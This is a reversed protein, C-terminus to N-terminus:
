KTVLKNIRVNQVCQQSLSISLSNQVEQSSAPHILQQGSPSGQQQSSGGSGIAMVGGLWTAFLIRPVGDRLLITYQGGAYNVNQPSEVSVNWLISNHDTLNLALVWKGPVRPYHNASILMIPNTETGCITMCSCPLVPDDTHTINRTLNKMDIVEIISGDEERFHVLKNGGTDDSFWSRLQNSDEYWFGGRPDISFSFLTINAYKVKWKMVGNTYVAYIHPDKNRGFVTSNNFGDFYITDGILTPSAQSTGFYSFNWAVQFVGPGNPDNRLFDVAFFQGIKVGKKACALFIRNGKVCASNITSYYDPGQLLQPTTVANSALEQGTTTDVASVNGDPSTFFAINGEHFITNLPMLGFPVSAVWEVVHQDSDYHYPCSLPNSMISVFDSMPMDPLGYYSTSGGGEGLKIEGIKEGTRVDYALVPGGETPLIITRNDVITPSLVVSRFPHLVDHPIETIWEVYVHDHDSANVLIMKSNDCAIVRDHIDVMPTSSTAFFNLGWPNLLSGSHWIRNGDYDYIILNDLGLYNTFTSAAIRGNGAIGNGFTGALEGGLSHDYWIEGVNDIPVPLRINDSQQPSCHVMGGGAPPLIFDSGIITEPSHTLEIYAKGTVSVGGITGSVTGAGEWFCSDPILQALFQQVRPLDQIVRVMQDSYSPTVILDIPKSSETIHWQGAFRRCSVPDVWYTQPTITYSSLLELVNNQNLLNIGNIVSPATKVGTEADWSDCAMIEVNNDLKLSFWEYTIALGLRPHTRDIMDGWQHDMWAIGTVQETTGNVTIFGSVTLRTLSYYYSSFENGHDVEEYGDGSVMLPIKKSDLDVSLAMPNQDERSTGDVAMSYKFPILGSTNKQTRLYEGQSTDQREHMISGTSLTSDGTQVSVVPNMGPSVGVDSTATHQVAAQELSQAVVETQTQQLQVGQNTPDSNQNDDTLREFSINLSNTSATQTGIELNTYTQEETLDSVTFLRMEENEFLVTRINYFSVFAGYHKHTTQGTLNFNVYWWEMPYANTNHAGEDTPFVITTGSPRYPYRKWAIDSHGIDASVLITQVIMLFIILLSFLGKMKNKSLRGKTTMKKTVIM